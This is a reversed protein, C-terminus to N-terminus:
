FVNRSSKNLQRVLVTSESVAICWRTHRYFLTAAEALRAGSIHEVRSPMMRTAAIENM